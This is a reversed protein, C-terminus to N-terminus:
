RVVRQAAGEITDPGHRAWLGRDFHLRDLLDTTEEGELGWRVMAMYEDAAIDTRQVEFIACGRLHHLSAHVVLSWRSSTHEESLLILVGQEGVWAGTIPACEELVVLCRAYAPDRENCCRQGIYEQTVVAVRTRTVPLCEPAPRGSASWAARAAAIARTDDDTAQRIDIGPGCGSAILAVTLILSRM